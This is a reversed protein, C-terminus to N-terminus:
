GGMRQADGEPVVAPGAQQAEALAVAERLEDATMSTRGRVNLAKARAQLDDGELAVPTISAGIILGEDILREDGEGLLSREFPEGPAITQGNALLEPHGADARLKVLDSM